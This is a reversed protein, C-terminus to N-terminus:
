SKGFKERWAEFIRAKEKLEELTMAIFYAKNMPVNKLYGWYRGGYAMMHPPLPHVVLQGYLSDKVEEVALVQEEHHFLPEFPVSRAPEPTIPDPATLYVSTGKAISM